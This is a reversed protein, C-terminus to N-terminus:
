HRVWDAYPGESDRRRSRGAGRRDGEDEDEGRGDRAWRELIARAYAWRRANQRVAERLADAIWAAPYTAAAEALEDALLPTVLGINAEYLAVVAAVGAAEPTPAPAGPPAAPPALAPLAAGGRALEAALARGARDNVLLWTEPGEPAARRVSRAHGSAVLGDLAARVAAARAPAAHGLAAAAADLTPDLAADEARVAAPAGHPRRAVRWILWLLARLALPDAVAALDRSFLLDPVPTARAGDPYGRAADGADAAGAPAAPRPHARM